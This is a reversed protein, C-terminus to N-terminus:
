RGPSGRMRPLVSSASITSARQWVESIQLPTAVYMGDARMRDADGDFWDSRHM